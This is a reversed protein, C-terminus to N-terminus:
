MQKGDRSANALVAAAEVLHESDLSRLQDLVTRIWKLIDIDRNGQRSDEDARQLRNLWDPDDLDISDTETASRFTTALSIFMREAM